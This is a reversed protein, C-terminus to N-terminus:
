VIDILNTLSQINTLNEILLSDAGFEFLIGASTVTAHSLASAVSAGSGGWLDTDLALRDTLLAFDTVRDDGNMFVFVDRGQGGFLIDNGSGGVLTDDGSNGNLTDNGSGGELSDRGANGNLNDNGSDGILVDTGIGGELSDSGSGGYLTDNGANGYLADNGSGGFLVDFGNMAVLTDNGSGGDLLDFNIGGDLYDNGGDGFLSDAGSQGYIRDGSDGGYILDFGRNGTLHDEGAGGYLSDGGSGGDIRDVGADGYITDTGPNGYLTDDGSGGYILDDADKGTLVDASEYGYITDNGASGVIQDAFETGLHMSDVPGEDPDEEPDDVPDEDPDEDPDENPDDVPDEDPDEDPDDVPDESDLLADIWDMLFRSNQVVNLAGIQLETLPTGQATYIRLVEDGFRLEAGNSLTTIELQALSRLFPWHSLDLTDVAPDFDWIVDAAGDASLIFVDAGAGGWLDDIGGGDRLIDDGAGGSITSDLAGGYIIDNGSTGTIQGGDGVGNSVDILAGQLGVDVAFTSFGAESGSVTLIELMGNNFDLVIGTLDDVVATVTDEVSGILQLVGDPLLRFVTLGQDAGAVAVYAVDGVVLTEMVSVGQFRTELTDMVHDTVRLAGTADIALVTVTSSGTAGVIAYSRGGITVVDLVSPNAIGTGESMEHRGRETMAGNAGIEYSVLITEGELATILFPSGGTESADLVAFATTEVAEDGHAAATHNGSNRLVWNGAADIQYIAPLDNAGRAGYIYNASGATVSATLYLDAPLDDYFDAAADSLQGDSGISQALIPAGTIGTILLIDEATGAQAAPLVTLGIDVGAVPLAETQVRDLLTVSGGSGLRWVMIEVFGEEAEGRVAGYVITDGNAAQVTEVTGVAMVGAATGVTSMHQFTFHTM